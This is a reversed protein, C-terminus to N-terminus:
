QYLLRQYCWLRRPPQDAAGGDDDKDAPVLPRLSGAGRGEKPSAGIPRASPASPRSRGGPSGSPGRACPGVCCSAIAPEAHRNAAVINRGVNGSAKGFVECAYYM